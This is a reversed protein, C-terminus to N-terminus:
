MEPSLPRCHGFVTERAICGETSPGLEWDLVGETDNAVFDPYVEHFPANGPALAGHIREGGFQCTGGVANCIKLNNQRWQSAHDNSHDNGGVWKSAYALEAHIIFLEHSVLLKFGSLMVRHFHEQKDAGYGVYREDFALYDETNGVFYPEAEEYYRAEYPATAEWWKRYNLQAALYPPYPSLALGNCQAAGGELCRILAEKSDFFTASSVDEMSVPVVPMEDAGAVAWMAQDISKDLKWGKKRYDNIRQKMEPDWMVLDIDKDPAWGKARYEKIRQKMESPDVKAGPSPEHVITPKLIFPAVIMLEDKKLEVGKSTAAKSMNCPIFDADLLMVQKTRVLQLARNRMINAPYAWAAAHKGAVKIHSDEAKTWIDIKHPMYVCWSLSAEGTLRQSAALLQGEATATEEANYTILAIVVAGGWNKTSMLMSNIRSIDGHLALTIGPQMDEPLVPNFFSILGVQRGSPTAVPTTPLTQTKRAAELESKAQREQAEAKQLRAELQQVLQAAALRAEGLLRAHQKQQPEWVRRQLMALHAAPDQGSPGGHMLFSVCQGCDDVVAGAGGRKSAVVEECFQFSYGGAGFSDGCGDQTFCWPGGASSDPNGCNHPLPDSFQQGNYDWSQLCKCGDTPVYRPTALVAAARHIVCTRAPADFTFGGSCRGDAACAACCGGMDTVGDVRATDASTLNVGSVFSGVGGCRHEFLVEDLVHSEQLQVLSWRGLALLAVAAYLSRPRPPRCRCRRLLKMM